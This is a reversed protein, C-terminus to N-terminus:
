IRKRERKIRFPRTSKAYAVLLYLLILSVSTLLVIGAMLSAPIEKEQFSFSVDLSEATSQFVEEGYKQKLEELPLFLMTKRLLCTIYTSPLFLLVNQLGQSFSHIPVYSGILFGYTSSVLVSIASLASESKVFVNIFSSLSTGFLSLLAIEGLLSFVMRTDTYDGQLFLYFFGFLAAFLCLLFSAFFSALFYSLFLTPKRVPTLLLDEMAGSQTDKVMRMNCTFSVMVGSVALLSSVLEGGTLSNALQKSLVGEPFTSLLSDTTLKGLFTLYLFLLILPSILSTFFAIKDSFYMKMNRRILVWLKM